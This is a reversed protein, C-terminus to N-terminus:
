VWAGSPWRWRFAVVCAKRLTNGSTLFQQRDSINGLHGMGNLSGVGAGGLRNGQEVRVGQRIPKSCESETPGCDCAGASDGATDGELITVQREPGAAARQGARTRPEWSPGAASLTWTGLQREGEAWKRERTAAGPHARPKHRGSHMSDGSGPPHGKGARTSCNWSM